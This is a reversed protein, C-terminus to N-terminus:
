RAKRCLGRGLRNDASGERREGETWEEAAITQRQRGRQWQAAHRGDEGGRREARGMRDGPSQGARTHRPATTSRATCAMAPGGASVGVGRGWGGGGGCGPVNRSVLHVTGRRKHKNLFYAARPQQHSALGNSTVPWGNSTVPWSNSTLRWGGGTVPWGNDTLRRESATVQRMRDILGWGGNTPRRNLRTKPRLVEFAGVPPPPPEAPSIGYRLNTRFNGGARSCVCGWCRDGRRCMECTAEVSTASTALHHRDDIRFSSLLSQPYDLHRPLRQLQCKADPPCHSPM